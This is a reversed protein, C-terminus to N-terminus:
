KHTHTHTNTHSMFYVNCSMGICVNCTRGDNYSLGTNTGVCCERQSVAPVQDGTCGTSTFCQSVVQGTLLLVLVLSSWM